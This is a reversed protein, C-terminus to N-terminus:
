RSVSVGESWGRSSSLALFETLWCATSEAQRDPHCHPYIHSLHPRYLFFDHIFNCKLLPIKVKCHTIAM